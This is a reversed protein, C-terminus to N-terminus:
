VVHRCDSMGEPPEPTRESEAVSWLLAVGFMEVIGSPSRRNEGVIVSVCSVSEATKEFSLLPTPPIQVGSRSIDGTAGRDELPDDRRAIILRGSQIDTQLKTGPATGRSDTAMGPKAVVGRDVM